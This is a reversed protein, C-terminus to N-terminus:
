IGTSSLVFRSFVCMYEHSVNSHSAVFFPSKKVTYLPHRFEKNNNSDIFTVQISDNWGQFLKYFLLSFQVGNLLVLLVFFARKLLKFSRTKM